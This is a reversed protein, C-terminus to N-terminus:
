AHRYLTGHCPKVGPPAAEAGQRGSRPGGRAERLRLLALPQALERCILRPEIRGDAQLGQQEGAEHRAQHTRAGMGHLESPPCAIHQPKARQPARGDRGAAAAAAAAGTGRANLAKEGAGPGGQGSSCSHSWARLPSAPSPKDATSPRHSAPKRAQAGSSSQSDSRRGLAYRRRRTGSTSSDRRCRESVQSHSPRASFHGAPHHLSCAGAGAPHHTSAALAPRATSRGQRPGGRQNAVRQNPTSQQRHSFPLLPWRTAAVGAWAVLGQRGGSVGEGGATTRQAPRNLRSAIPAPPAAPGMERCAWSPRSNHRTLM